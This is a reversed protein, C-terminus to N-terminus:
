RLLAKNEKCLMVDGQMVADMILIVLTNCLIEGYADIIFFNETMTVLSIVVVDNRWYGKKDFLGSYIFYSARNDKLILLRLVANLSHQVFFRYSIAKGLYGNVEILRIFNTVIIGVDATIM